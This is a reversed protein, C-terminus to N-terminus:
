ASPTRLGHRSAYVFLELRNQVRLKSYISTLHNRVTHETIHLKAAIKAYNASPDLVLEEILERERATLRAQTAWDPEPRRPAGGKSLEVIIRGTTARDLWIEGRHVKDIAKVITEAPDEKYVIGRAGALVARDHLPSNRQETLLLVKSNSRALLEPIVDIGSREGLEIDLVVVDPRAQAVLEIAEVGSTAKGVVAMAPRESEILKELGWLVTRHDDVLLVRITAATRPTMEQRTRAKAARVGAAARKSQKLFILGHNLM